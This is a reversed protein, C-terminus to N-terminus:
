NTPKPSTDVPEPPPGQADQPPTVPEGSIDSGPSVPATETVRQPTAAISPDNVLISLAAMSDAGGTMAIKLLAQYRLDAESPKSEPDFGAAQLYADSDIVGRDYLQQGQESRDPEEVLASADYWIIYESGDALQTPINAAAAMPQLYSETLGNVIVEAVPSIHIRVSDESIQWQGWHNVDGMGKLAEPPMNLTTALRDISINRDSVLKDGMQTAFQLHVFKDIWQAPVKIPIPFASAASGPNKVAQSGVEILREMFPDTGDKANPKAPFQVEQPVLLIGNSAVRSLMHAMILRNYMDIERLIPLAAECPSTPRWQFEPDPWWVRSVLSEPALTRWVARESNVQYALPTQRRTIRIEANSYTRYTRRNTMADQETVLYSDGPVEIHITMRKLMAAQGAAGGAMGNVIDVLPGSELEVPDASGPMRQAAFLRIRSMCNSLWSDIAFNLEGMSHYYQWAERQWETPQIVLTQANESDLHEVAATLGREVRAARM